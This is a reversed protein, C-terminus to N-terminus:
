RQFVVGNGRTHTINRTVQLLDDRDTASRTLVGLGSVLLALALTVGAAEGARAPDVVAQTAVTTYAYVFGMTFGCATLAMVYRPWSTSLSLAALSIAAVVCGAGMVTVPSLRSPLRGSLTGGAAAGVSPGLFVLGATLPDLGRVDQLNLTSLFVTVVYAVNAVTGAIVLVAFGRNAFLRVDVLPHRTRREVSVFAALLGVSAVGAALTTASLWGWTPARDFVLTFLGIGTIILALGGVDIRRPASEDFTEPIARAGILLSIVTFPVLLWFVARWGVTETLVGGVLPGAANGLGAIGYAVGIARGSREAPYANTLVSVSVPFIMAAGVGQLARSGVLAAATPAVACLVSAVAFLAIGSLLVRRRGFIDAVRGAPVMFAGLTLMYISVVWRMDTISSNLDAAIRPLALNVAFFDIQVCFLAVATATLIWRTSRHGIM